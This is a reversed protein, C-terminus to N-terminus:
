QLFQNISSRLCLGDPGCDQATTKATAQGNLEFYDTCGVTALDLASTASGGKPCQTDIHRPYWFGTPYIASPDVQTTADPDKFGSAQASNSKFDTNLGLADAKAESVFCPKEPNAMPSATGDCPELRVGFKLLAREGERLSGDAVEYLKQNQVMNATIRSELTVSRMAVVALLLLLLILIMSVLLAAGRQRRPPLHGPHRHLYANM